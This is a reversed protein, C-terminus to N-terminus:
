REHNRDKILTRAKNIYKRTVNLKAATSFHATPLGQTFRLVATFSVFALLFREKRPSTIPSVIPHVSISHPPNFYSLILKRFSSIPHPLIPHSPIFYSIIPYSLNHFYVTCSGTIQSAVPYM